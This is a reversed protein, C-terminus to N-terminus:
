AHKHSARHDDVRRKVQHTSIPMPFVQAIRNCGGILRLFQRETAEMAADPMNNMLGIHLERIDQSVARDRSLVDGGELRFREFSPLGTNAVIPM